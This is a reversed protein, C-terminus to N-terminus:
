LGYFMDSPDGNAYLKLFKLSDIMDLKELTSYFVPFRAKISSPGTYQFFDKVINNANALLIADLADLRDFMITREIINDTISYENRYLISPPLTLEAVLSTVDTIFVTLMSLYKDFGAESLNNPSGIDRLYGTFFVLNMNGDPDLFIERTKRNFAYVENSNHIALLKITDSYTTSIYKTDDLNINLNNSLIKKTNGNPLYMCNDNVISEFKIFELLKNINM